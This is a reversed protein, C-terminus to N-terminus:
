CSIPFVHYNNVSSFSSGSKAPLSCQINVVNAGTTTTTINVNTTFTANGTGSSTGLTTFSYAFGNPARTQASCTVNGTSSGDTVFVVM